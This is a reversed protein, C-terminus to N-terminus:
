ALDGHSDQAGGETKGFLDRVNQVRLGEVKGGMLLGDIQRKWEDADAQCGKFRFTIIQIGKEESM